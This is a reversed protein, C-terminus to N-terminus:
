VHGDSQGGNMYVHRGDTQGVLFGLFVGSVGSVGRRGEVILDVLRTLDLHTKLYKQGM